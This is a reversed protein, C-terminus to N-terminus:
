AAQLAPMRFYSQRAFHRVPGIHNGRREREVFFQPKGVLEVNEAVAARQLVWAAEADRRRPSCCWLRTTMVGTTVKGM